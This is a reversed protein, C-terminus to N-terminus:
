RALWGGDVALVHGNVYDSAGSALFVAAGALDSAEGWRAAPIRSVISRNREEDERIAKTNATAIYGPAIANVQVNRSAWENALAKTLGAVAHKSATYAPVLIGGQFSLLSAINIIKGRERELMGKGALQSLQFVAHLNINMVEHWKSTGYEVAPERWIIGANNVLIDIPEDGVLEQYKRELHDLDRLDILVERSSGGVEAIRASTEEMNSRHGLLLLEAGADALGIAIAQGIGSAAGTVLAKKGALSFLQKGERM